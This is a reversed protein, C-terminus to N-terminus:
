WIKADRTLSPTQRKIAVDTDATLTETLRVELVTTVTPLESPNILPPEKRINFISSINKTFHIYVCINTAHQEYLGTFHPPCLCKYTRHNPDASGNSLCVGKNECPNELCPDSKECFMGSYHHYCRCTYASDEPGAQCVGNGSCLRLLPSAQCLQVKVSVNLRLGLKCLQPDGDHLAIFYHHGPNLWKNELHESENVNRPSLFQDTFDGPVSCSEFNAESVNLLRIGYSKLTEDASMALKDGHQLRLPCIQPFNLAPGASDPGRQSGWCESPSGCINKILTWNMKIVHQKPHWDLPALSSCVTQCEIAHVTVFVLALSLSLSRM